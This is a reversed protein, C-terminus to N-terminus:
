YAVPRDEYKTVAKVINTTVPLLLIEVGVKICVETVMIALLANIPMEGLFVIPLFISSDVIEGCLSSLVARFGFKEHTNAYRKKMGAFVKDNVFDGVVFACVSAFLIRPSNGLIAVMADQADFYEPAPAIIALEFAGVMLLNCAFAIYCTIRSWRYGYCESYVDSLIYTIPFVIAGCTMTIGFPLEMTKVTLINAILYAVTGLVTLILKLESTSKKTRM